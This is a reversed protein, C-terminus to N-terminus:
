RRVLGCCCHVVGRAPYMIMMGLGWLMTGVFGTTSKRLSQPDKLVGTYFGISILLLLVAAIPLFMLLVLWLGFPVLAVLFAPLLAQLLTDPRSDRRNVLLSPIPTFRSVTNPVVSSALVSGEVVAPLQGAECPRFPARLDPPRRDPRSQVDAPALDTRRVTSAAM